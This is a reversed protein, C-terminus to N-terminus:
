GATFHQREVIIPPLVTLGLSHPFEFGKPNLWRFSRLALPGSDLWGQTSFSVELRNFKAAKFLYYVEWHDPQAPGDWMWPAEGLMWGDKEVKKGDRGVHWVSFYWSHEAVFGGALDPGAPRGLSKRWRISGWVTDAFLNRRVLSASAWKKLRVKSPRERLLDSFEALERARLQTAQDSVTKM